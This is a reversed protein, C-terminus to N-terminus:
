VNDSIAEMCCSTRPLSLANRGTPCCFSYFCSLRIGYVGGRICPLFPCRPGSRSRSPIAAEPQQLLHQSIDRRDSLCAAYSWPKPVRRICGSGRLYPLSSLFIGKYIGKRFGDRNGDCKGIAQFGKRGTYKICLLPLAIASIASAPCNWDILRKPDIFGRVERFHPIVRLGIKRVFVPPIPNFGWLSCAAAENLKSRESIEARLFVGV